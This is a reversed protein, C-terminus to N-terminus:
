PWLARGNTPQSVVCALPSPSPGFCGWLPLFIQIIRDVVVFSQELLRTRAPPTQRYDTVMVTAQHNGAPLPGIAVAMQWPTEVHGCLVNPIQTEITVTTGQVAHSVYKPVCGDPNLVAVQVTLSDNADPLAPEVHIGGAVDFTHRIFLKKEGTVGSVTYVEVAYQNPLQPPILVSFGWATSVDNCVVPPAPTKAELRVANGEVYQADFVPACSDNWQGFVSILFPQYFAPSDPYVSIAGDAKGASYLAQHSIPSFLPAVLVLILVLPRFRFGAMVVGMAFCFPLRRLILILM